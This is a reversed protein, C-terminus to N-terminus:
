VFINVDHVAPLISYVYWSYNICLHFWNRNDSVNKRNVKPTTRCPRLLAAQQYRITPVCADFYFSCYTGGTGNDDSDEDDKRVNNNNSTSRETITLTRSSSASATSHQFRQQQAPTPNLRIPGDRVNKRKYPTDPPAEGPQLVLIQEITANFSDYSDPAIFFHRLEFHVEVLAGRITDNVDVPEVFRDGVYVRLPVARFDYKLADLEKRLDASVPWHETEHDVQESSASSDAQSPHQSLHINHDDFVASEGHPHRNELDELYM